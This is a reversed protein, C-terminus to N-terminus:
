RGSSKNKRKIDLFVKIYKPKTMGQYNSYYLDHIKGM